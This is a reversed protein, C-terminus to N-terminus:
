RGEPAMVMGVLRHSSLATGTAAEGGRGGAPGKGLPRVAPAGLGASSPEGAGAQM